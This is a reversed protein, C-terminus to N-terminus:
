SVHFHHVDAQDISCEPSIKFFFKRTRHVCFHSYRRICCKILCRKVDVLMRRTCVPVKYAVVYVNYFQVPIHVHTCKAICDMQVYQVHVVYLTGPYSSTYYIM